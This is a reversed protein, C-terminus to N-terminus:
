TRNACYIDIKKALPLNAMRKNCQVCALALNDMHNPGGNQVSVLHEVTLADESLPGAACYFCNRGDREILAAKKRTMSSRPKKTMGMGTPINAKFADLAERAFGAATLRGKANGYIVHVGGRARFRALEWQNTPALVEAGQRALWDHLRKIEDPKM